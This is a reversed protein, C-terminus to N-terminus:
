LLSSGSQHDSNPNSDRESAPRPSLVICVLFGSDLLCVFTNCAQPLPSTWSSKAPQCLQISIAIAFDALCLALSKPSLTPSRKLLLQQFLMRLQVGIAVTRQALFLHDAALLDNTLFHSRAYRVAHQLPVRFSVGIAIADETFLFDFRKPFIASRSVSRHPAASALSAHATAAHKPSWRWRDHDLLQNL